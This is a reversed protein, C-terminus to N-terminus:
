EPSRHRDCAAAVPRITVRCQASSAQRIPDAQARPYSQARNARCASSATSLQFCSRMLQPKYYNNASLDKAAHVSILHTPESREPHCTTPPPEKTQLQRDGNCDKRERIERKWNRKGIEM